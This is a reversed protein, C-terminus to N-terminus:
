KIVRKKVRMLVHDVRRGDMDLVVIIVNLTNGERDVASINLTDDVVPMRQLKDYILGGITEYDETEPLYIDTQSSVEDIRLIGALRWRKNGIKEVRKGAPDHEDRVEGVLEEILDEVTVIGDIDGFEDVVIGTQLPNSKLNILLSDLKLISPVFLPKVMVDKVKVIKRSSNSAKIAQKIHVIGLIENHDKGYVPFRSHGTASSLDFLDEIHQNVGILKMRFRPTMVDEAIMDDFQMSRELLNATQKPLLGKEGSRRVLSALEDASRASALEEKPEVGIKRLVANASTNLGIIPYKMITSFGRLFGQVRRATGMPKAIALNKPVLEGFLMTLCTAVLTGFVISITTITSEQLNAFSFIKSIIPSTLPETIFGIALNTITIGVQAGSLQTSLTKLAILVGQANSDGNDALKQVKQKQVALLSFEAAVFMGCGIVLIFFLVLLAIEAM